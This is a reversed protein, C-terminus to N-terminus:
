AAQLVLLEQETLNLSPKNPYLAYAIVACLMNILGNYPSRHRSHELHFVSKLQNNASEILSRKRLMLKDFLPMLRNKMNKRIGTILQLGREVLQNFLKQDIYGKEAFLKGLLDQTLDNVPQRDDTNAPTIKCACLEGQHNIVLHLKFGYFWGKTTKGLQAIDKFVKHSKIRKYHCVAISTSDIFAIGKSTAQISQLFACLPMLMSPILSVFRTYSIRQPFADALRHGIEQLYFHKFNRYHSQQFLLLITIQESLTLRSTRQRKRLGGEVLLRNWEPIFVQCFDDVICFLEEISLM